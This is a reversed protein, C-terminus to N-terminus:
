IATFKSASARAFSIPMATGSLRSLMFPPLSISRHDIQEIDRAVRRSHPQKLEAM